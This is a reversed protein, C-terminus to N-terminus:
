SPLCLQGAQSVRQNLSKKLQERLLHKSEEGPAPGPAQDAAYIDETDSPNTEADLDHILLGEPPEVDIVSSASSDLFHEASKLQFPPSDTYPPTNHSHIHLSSLSPSPHLAPAVSLRMPSSRALAPTGSRSPQDAM